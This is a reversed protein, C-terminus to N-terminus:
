VELQEETDDLDRTMMQIIADKRDVERSHRQALVEIEKRLSEQFLSPSLLLPSM